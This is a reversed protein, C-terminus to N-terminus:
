TLVSVTFGAVVARGRAAALGRAVVRRTTRRVTFRGAARGATTSFLVVVTVVVCGHRRSPAVRGRFGIM